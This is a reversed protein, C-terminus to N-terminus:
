FLNCDICIIYNVCTYKNSVYAVSREDTKQLMIRRGPPEMEMERFLELDYLQRAVLSWKIDGDVIEQQIYVELDKNINMIFSPLFTSERTSCNQSFGSRELDVSWGLDKMTEIQDNDIKIGSETYDKIVDELKDMIQKFINNVLKISM